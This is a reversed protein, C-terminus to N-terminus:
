RTITDLDTDKGLWERSFVVFLFSKPNLEFKKLCLKVFTGVTFEAKLTAGSM